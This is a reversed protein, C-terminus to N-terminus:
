RADTLAGLVDDGAALTWQRHPRHDQTRSIGAILVFDKKKLTKYNNKRVSVSQEPAANKTTYFKPGIQIFALYKSQQGLVCIFAIQDCACVFLGDIRRQKSFSM